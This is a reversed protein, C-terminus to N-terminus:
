VMLPIDNGHRPTGSAQDITTNYKLVLYSLLWFAKVCHYQKTCGDTKDWMIAMKKRIIGSGKLSDFPV